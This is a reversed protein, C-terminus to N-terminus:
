QDAEFVFTKSGQLKIGETALLQLVCVHSLLLLLLLLVSLLVPLAYDARSSAAIKTINQSAGVVLGLCFM